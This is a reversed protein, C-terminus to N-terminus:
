KNGCSRSSKLISLCLCMNWTKFYQFLAHETGGTLNVPDSPEPAPHPNRTPTRALLHVPGARSHEPGETTRSPTFVLSPHLTNFILINSATEGSYHGTVANQLLVGM